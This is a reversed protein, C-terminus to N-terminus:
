FTVRIPRPWTTTLTTRSSTEVPWLQLYGEKGVFGEGGNSQQMFAVYDAPFDISLRKGANALAEPAAGEEAREFRDFLDDGIM